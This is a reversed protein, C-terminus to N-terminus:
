NAHKKRPPAGKPKKKAANADPGGLVFENKLYQVLESTPSQSWEMLKENLAKGPDKSLGSNLTGVYRNEVKIAISQRCTECGAELNYFGRQRYLKLEPLKPFEKGDPGKDWYQKFIQHPSALANKYTDGHVPDM